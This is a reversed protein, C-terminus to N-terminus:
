FRYRVVNISCNGTTDLKYFLTQPTIFRVVPLIGGLIQGVVPNLFLRLGIENTPDAAIVRLGNSATNVSVGVSLHVEKANAPVFGALSFSTYATSTGNSVVTLPGTDVDRDFQFGITFQGSGNTRRVSVLASASYGAPMNGGGYVEPAAASTANVGLLARAGTAPNYIAYVAVWGNAPAAGADMGGAGTTGLNIAQSFSALLYTKGGLSSKVVVEDAAVTATASPTAVNMVLNRAWGVVALSQASVAAKYNALITTLTGDDVADQGTTDVVFQGMVAAMISSQRWVKNLQASQAVGSSFGATRAALGSYTVQSIVNAGAGGGFVLFDNTAM